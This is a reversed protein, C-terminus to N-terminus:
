QKAEGTGEGLTVGAGSSSGGPSRHVKRDQPNWPASWHANLGLGGFAFEVTHAKGMIVGIQSRLRRVIPGERRWRAQKM